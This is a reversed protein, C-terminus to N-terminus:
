FRVGIHFVWLFSSRVRGIPLTKKRTHWKEGNGPLLHCSMDSALDRARSHAKTGEVEDGGDLPHQRLHLSEQLWTVLKSVM